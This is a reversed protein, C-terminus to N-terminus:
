TKGKLSLQRKTGVEEIIITCANDKFLVVGARLPISPNQSIRIEGTPIAGMLPHHFPLLEFEGEDGFIHVSEVQKDFLTGMLSLVRLRFTNM